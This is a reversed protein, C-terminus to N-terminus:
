LEIFALTGLSTMEVVVHDERIEVVNLEIWQGNAYQFVKINQGAKVGKTYFNVTATNFGGVSAKIRVVNMVRGGLSAAFSKASTVHGYAPKLVSFVQNSPAGNIIVHGGQGVPTVNQLGPVSVVANNMYEGVTKGESAAANVVSSPIAEAEVAPAPAATVVTPPVVASVASNNSGASPSSSGASPSTAAMVPMSVVMAGALVLAILKKM